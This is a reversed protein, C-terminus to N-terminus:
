VHARGIEMVKAPLNAPPPTVDTSSGDSGCATLLLASIGVLHKNM